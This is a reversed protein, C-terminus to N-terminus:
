ALALMTEIVQNVEDDRMYAFLPLNLIQQCVAAATDGGVKAHLYKGAGNQVSMPEPYVIGFGIGKEKLSATITDRRAASELLICNLYGNETYDTPPALCEYKGQLAARYLAAVQRRSSLRAELHGYGLNLWAAQLSDMRSNWGVYDYSYHESRGHNGISRIQKATESDNTLVAGADGAAGYVKAPYFSITAIQAEKYISQGKYQVGWAQAGDEVLAVNNKQSFARFEQLRGTGWGYLHVLLAAKPKYKEVAACFLDFDMQLDARNVDVTVPKAGNNVIAEYTAWFTLDPVLVVDGAEVGAARLAIQLADTGNGCGIAHQTQCAAAVNSELQQVAPGGMFATNRSMEAVVASWDDLFGDEFRQLDIFPVSM